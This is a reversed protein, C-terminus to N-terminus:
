KKIGSQLQSLMLGKLEDDIKAERRDVENKKKWTIIIEERKRREELEQQRQMMRIQSLNTHFYTPGRPVDLLGGSSLAHFADSVSTAPSPSM